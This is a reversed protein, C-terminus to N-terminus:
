HGEVAPTEGGVDRVWVVAGSPGSVCLIEGGDESGGRREGLYKGDM